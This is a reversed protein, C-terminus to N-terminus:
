PSASKTGATLQAPAPQAATLQPTLQPSPAISNTGISATGISATRATAPLAPPRRGPWGQDVLLRVAPDVRMPGAPVSTEAPEKKRPPELRLLRALRQSQVVPLSPRPLQPEWPDAAETATDTATITAKPAPTLATLYCAAGLVGALLLVALALVTWHRRRLRRAVM